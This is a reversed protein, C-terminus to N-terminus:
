SHLVGAMMKKTSRLAHSYAQKLIKILKRLEWRQFHPDLRLLNTALLSQFVELASLPRIHRPIQM